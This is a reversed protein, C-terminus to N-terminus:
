SPSFWEKTSHDHLEARTTSQERDLKMEGLTSSVVIEPGQGDGPVTVGRQGVALGLDYRIADRLRDELREGPLSGGMWADYLGLHPDGTIEEVTDLFSDPPAIQYRHRVYYTQLINFFAEDGVRERLEHFYLAGKDCVIDWYLDPPYANAPLGAPIDRGMRKLGEYTEVFVGYLIGDARQKGYAKEYYLMTSYQTLAEDLWPDDIQDNGV